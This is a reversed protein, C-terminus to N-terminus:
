LLADAEAEATLFPFQRCLSNRLAATEAPDACPPLRQDLALTAPDGSLVLVRDALDLAQDINHMAVLVTTGHEQAQRSVIGAISASLQPDLSAFPEDLVLFDPSIALARALSVRRAMGLSLERPYSQEVGPLGVSRTLLPMDIPPLDPRRVLRINEAVSLWPALCPEQFVVGVRAANLAVSGAFDQELGLVIRLTTTKGIGSPGLLAVVEGRQASFAVRRLVPRSVGEGSRFWKAEISVDVVPAGPM